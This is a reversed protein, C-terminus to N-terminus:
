IYHGLREKKTSLYKKNHKSPPIIHSVRENIVQDYKELGDVKRFNNTLLNIPGQHFYRIIQAGILYDREDEDKGLALNADVTDMNEQQQLRYAKIKSLLGIGRGEQRLYILMGCGNNQVIELGKKLQDGCDCLLSGFVHGTLCESEIRVLPVEKDKVQQFNKSVFAWHYRQDLSSYFSHLQFDGMTLEKEIVGTHSILYPNEVRSKLLASHSLFQFNEKQCLDECAELSMEEGTQSLVKSLFIGKPPVELFSLAERIHALINQKKISEGGPFSLLVMRDNNRGTPTEKKLLREACKNLGEVSLNFPISTDQFSLREPTELETVAQIQRSYQIFSALKAKHCHELLVILFASTKGDEEHAYLLIQGEALPKLTEAINM